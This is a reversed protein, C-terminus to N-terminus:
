LNVKICEAICDIWTGNSLKFLTYNTNNISITKKTENYDIIPKCNDGFCYQAGGIGSIIITYLVGFLFAAVTSYM